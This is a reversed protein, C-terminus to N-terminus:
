LHRIGCRVRLRFSVLYGSIITQGANEAHALYVSYPPFRDLHPGVRDALPVDRDVSYVHPHLDASVGESVVGLMELPDGDSAMVDVCNRLEAKPWLNREM